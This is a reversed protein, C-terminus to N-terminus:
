ANENAYDLYTTGDAESVFYLWLNNNIFQAVLEIGNINYKVIGDSLTTRSGEFYVPDFMWEDDIYCVLKNENELGLSKSIKKLSRLEKTLDADSVNDVLGSVIDNGSIFYYDKNTLSDFSEFFNTSEAHQVLDAITYDKNNFRVGYKSIKEKDLLELSNKNDTDSEKEGNDPTTKEADTQDTENGTDEKDSQTSDDAQTEVEKTEQEIDQEDWKYLSTLKDNHGPIYKVVANELDEAGRRIYYGNADTVIANYWEAYKPDKVELEVGYVSRWTEWDMPTKTNKGGPYFKAHKRKADFDKSLVVEAKKRAKSIAKASDKMARKKAGKPNIKNQINRLFKPAENLINEDDEFTESVQAKALKFIIRGEEQAALEQAEEFSECPVGAFTGDPKIVAYRTTEFDIDETLEDVPAYNFLMDMIIEILHQKTEKLEVDISPDLTEICWDPDYESVNSAVDMALNDMLDDIRNWLHVQVLLQAESINSSENLEHIVKEDLINIKM